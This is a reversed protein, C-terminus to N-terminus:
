EARAKLAALAPLTKGEMFELFAGGGTSVCSLNETLNFQEAAALTDGGGAVSFANSHAVARGITETASAFQAFEFVGLPGNWLVTGAQKIMKVYGCVASPGIDFIMDDAALEHVSKVTAKADATLTKAVVVDQPLPIPHGRAAAAALLERAKAVLDPEFKSNGIPHGAAALFTNAIGGGLILQDVWQSLTEITHLKTSVKAGGLIALLPRQPSALVKNLADLEAMLLPGACAIPAYRAVGETSAQTRHAAGFADMVFVDCLAAYQKALQPSNEKEGTNFRVNELVAVEGNALQPPHQLYDAYLKVERNLARSLYEAVLALSMSADYRGEEPRGVHSMLMVKAGCEAAMRISILAAEIRKPSTIKGDALPVNLDQRLLVRKGRLDTATALNYPATAPM